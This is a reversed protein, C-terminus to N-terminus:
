EKTGKAMKLFNTVAKAGTVFTSIMSIPESVSETIYEATTLIKNTKKVTKRFEILIFYVQVGLVVFMITLIVIVVLLVAQVTDIM